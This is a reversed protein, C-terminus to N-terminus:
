PLEIEYRKASAVREGPPTVFAPQRVLAFKHQVAEANDRRAPGLAMLGAAAAIVLAVAVSAVFQRRATTQIENDTLGFAMDEDQMREINSM